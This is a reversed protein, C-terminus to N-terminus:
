CSLFIFYDGNTKGSLFLIGSLFKDTVFLCASPLGMSFRVSRFFFFLFDFPHKLLIALHLTFPGKNLAILSKIYCVSKHIRDSVFIFDREFVQHCYNALSINFIKVFHKVYVQNTPKYM